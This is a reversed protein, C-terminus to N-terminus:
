PVLNRRREAGRLSVGRTTMALPAFCDRLETESRGSSPATSSRACGTATTSGGGRNIVNRMPPRAGTSPDTQPEALRAAREGTAAFGTDRLGLPRCIRTDVFEALDQGSVVEVVRGLVDTSM